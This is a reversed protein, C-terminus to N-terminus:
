FYFSKKKLSVSREGLVVHGSHNRECPGLCAHQDDRTQPPCERPLIGLQWPGSEVRETNQGRTSGRGTQVPRHSPRMRRERGMSTRKPEGGSTGKERLNRLPVPKQQQKTGGMARHM